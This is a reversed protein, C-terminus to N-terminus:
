PSYFRTSLRRVKVTIETIQRLNAVRVNLSTTFHYGQRAQRWVPFIGVGVDWTGSHAVVHSLFKM